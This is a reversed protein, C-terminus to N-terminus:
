NPGNRFKNKRRENKNGLLYNIYEINYGLVFFARLDALRKLYNKTKELM